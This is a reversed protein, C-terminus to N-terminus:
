LGLGLSMVKEQKKSWTSDEGDDGARMNMDTFRNDIVHPNGYMRPRKLPVWSLSEITKPSTDPCEKKKEFGGCLAGLGTACLRGFFDM